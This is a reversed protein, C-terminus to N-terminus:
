GHGARSSFYVAHSMRTKDGDRVLLTAHTFGGGGNVKGGRESLGALLDQHDVQVRLAVGRGRYARLM